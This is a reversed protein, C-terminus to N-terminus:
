KVRMLCVGEELVGEVGDVEGAGQDQGRDGVSAGEADGFGLEDVREAAGAGLVRGVVEEARVVVATLRNGVTEVHGHCSGVNRDLVDVRHVNVRAERHHGLQSAQVQSDINDLGLNRNGNASTQSRKSTSSVIVRHLPNSRRLSCRSVQGLWSM